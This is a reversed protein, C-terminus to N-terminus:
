YLYTYVSITSISSFVRVFVIKSYMSIFKFLYQRRHQVCQYLRVLALLSSFFVSATGLTTCTIPRKNTKTNWDQSKVRFIWHVIKMLILINTKEYVAIIAGYVYPKPNINHLRWVKSTFKYNWHILFCETQCQLNRLRFM